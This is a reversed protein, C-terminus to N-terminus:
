LGHEAVLSAVAILLRRVAVFLLGREGCSSFARACCCLGLAALFLYIFYIFKNFFFLAYLLQLYLSCGRGRPRLSHVWPLPGGTALIQVESAPFALSVQELLCTEM